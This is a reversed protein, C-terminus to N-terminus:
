RDNIGFADKWTARVGALGIVAMILSCPIAWDSPRSLSLAGSGIFMLVSVSLCGCATGDPSQRGTGESEGQESEDRAPVQPQEDIEQAGM